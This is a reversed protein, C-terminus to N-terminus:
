HSTTKQRPFQTQHQATVTKNEFEKAEKKEPKIGRSENIVSEAPQETPVLAKSADAGDRKQQPLCITEHCQGRGRCVCVRM